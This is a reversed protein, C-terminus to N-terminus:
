LFFLLFVPPFKTGHTTAPEEIVFAAKDAGIGSAMEKHTATLKIHLPKSGQAQKVDNGQPLLLAHGFSGADNDNAILHQGSFGLVDIGM